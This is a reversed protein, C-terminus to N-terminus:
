LEYPMQKEMVTLNEVLSRTNLTQINKGMTYYATNWLVGAMSWNDM